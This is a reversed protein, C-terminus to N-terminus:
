ERWGWRHGGSFPATFMGNSHRCIPMRWSLRCLASNPRTVFTDPNPAIFVKAWFTWSTKAEKHFAVYSNATGKVTPLKDELGWTSYSHVRQIRLRDRTVWHNQYADMRRARRQKKIESKERKRSREMERSFAGRYKRPRVPLGFLKRLFDTFASMKNRRHQRLDQGHIHNESQRNNTDNCSAKNQTASSSLIHSFCCLRSNELRKYEIM